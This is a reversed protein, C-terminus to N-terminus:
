KLVSPANVIYTIFEKLQLVSYGLFLGVFGGNEAIYTLFGYAWFQETVVMKSMFYIYMVESTDKNLKGENLYRYIKQGVIICTLTFSQIELIVNMKYFM